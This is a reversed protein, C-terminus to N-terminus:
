NMQRKHEGIRRKLDTYNLRLIKSIHYLFYEPYLLEAAQWLKEPILCRKERTQRWLEFQQQIQELTPSENATVSQHM